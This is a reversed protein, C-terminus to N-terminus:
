RSRLSFYTIAGGAFFAALVSLLMGLPVSSKSTEAKEAEFTFTHEAVTRGGKEFRVDMEYAGEQPFRYTLVTKGIDAKAIGTAFYAASGRGLRVWIHDFAIEEGGADLVSFDFITSEGSVPASSYGIDM